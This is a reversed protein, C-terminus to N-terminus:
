LTGCGLRQHLHIGRSHDHHAGLRPQHHCRDHSEKEQFMGIVYVAYDSGKYSAAGALSWGVAAANAMAAMAVAAVLIMMKKM